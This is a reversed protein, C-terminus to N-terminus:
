KTEADDAYGLNLKPHGSTRSPELADLNKIGMQAPRKRFKEDTSYIEKCGLVQATAIHFCDWKRRRNECIRELKEDDTEARKPSGYGEGEALDKLAAEGKAATLAVEKTISYIKALSAIDGYTDRAITGAKYTAVGLEQVTIISTYIKAKSKELELLLQRIHQRHKSKKAGMEIFISTDFYVMRPQM